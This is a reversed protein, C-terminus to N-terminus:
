LKHKCATLSLCTVWESQLTDKNDLTIVLIGYENQSIVIVYYSSNQCSLDLNCSSTLVHNSVKFFRELGITNSVQAM